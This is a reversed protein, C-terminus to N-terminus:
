KVLHLGIVQSQFSRIIRCYSYRSILERTLGLKQLNKDDIYFHPRNVWKETIFQNHICFLQNVTHM